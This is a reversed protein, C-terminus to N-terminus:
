LSSVHHWLEVRENPIAEDPGQDEFKRVIAKAMEAGVLSKKSRLGTPLETTHTRNFTVGDKKSVMLSCWQQHTERLVNLAFSKNKSRANYAFENAPKGDAM